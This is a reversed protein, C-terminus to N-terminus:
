NVTFQVQHTLMNSTDLIKTSEQVVQGNVLIKLTVSNVGIAGSLDRVLFNASFPFSTPTFTTKWGSTAAPVTISIEDKNTYVVFLSVSPDSATFQYEVTKNTSTSPSDPTCSSLLIIIMLVLSYFLIKMHFPKFSM